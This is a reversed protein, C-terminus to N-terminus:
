RAENRTNAENWRRVCEDRTTGDIPVGCQCEAYWGRIDRPRPIFDIHPEYGCKMCIVPSGTPEALPPGGNSGTQQASETM